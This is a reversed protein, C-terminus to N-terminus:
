ESLIQQIYTVKEGHTSFPNNSDGQMICHVNWIRKEGRSVGNSDKYKIERKKINM